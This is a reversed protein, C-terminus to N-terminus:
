RKKDQYMLEDLRKTFSRVSKEQSPLFLDAGISVSVDFPFTKKENFSQFATQIRSVANSLEDPFECQLLIGFEDGGVRAVIDNASSSSRLIEATAKLVEDGVDHGYQDNIQKFHDLDLIMGAMRTNRFPSRTMLQLYDDFGRRNSLGTLYDTSVKENQVFVYIMLVALSTAPWVLALGFFAAQITGGLVSPLPFALLPIWLSRRIKKRNLLILIIALILHAFIIILFFFFWNGRQYTNTSDYFFIFNGFLNMFVIIAYPIATIGLWRNLGKLRQSDKFIYYLVYNVWLGTMVPAALYQIIGLIELLWHMGIGPTGDLTIQVYDVALLIMNMRIIWRFFRGEWPYPDSDKKPAQGILLIMLVALSFLYVSVTSYEM